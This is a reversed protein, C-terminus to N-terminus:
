RSFYLVDGASHRRVHEFGKRALNRVLAEVGSRGVVAPHTEVSIHRVGPLDSGGLLDTEAGEIDCVILTPRIEALAAGFSTMAVRHVAVCGEPPSHLSSAWFDRHVFFDSDGEPGNTLVANRFEAKSAPVGNASMTRHLCDILRPNAEYSVLRKTYPHRAILTSVFGVGAGLELVVENPRVIRQIQQAERIEYLRLAFARRIKPSLLAPDIALWVGLYNFSVSRHLERPPPFFPHETWARMLAAAWGYGIGVADILSGAGVAGAQELNSM